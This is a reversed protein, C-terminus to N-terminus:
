FNLCATGELNCCKFCIDYHQNFAARRVAERYGSRMAALLILRRGRGYTVGPLRRFAM